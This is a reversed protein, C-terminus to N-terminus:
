DSLKLFNLPFLKVDEDVWDDRAVPNGSTTPSTAYHGGKSDFFWLVLAPTSMKHDHPYILLYYNTIGARPASVISRTLSNPYRTEQEYIDKM